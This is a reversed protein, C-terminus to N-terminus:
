RPVATAPPRTYDPMAASQPLAGCEPCRRGEPQARLDYGCAACRGRRRRYWQRLVRKLWVMLPLAAMLAIPWMPVTVARYVAYLRTSSSQEESAFGVRALWGRYQWDDPPGLEAQERAWFWRNFLREDDRATGPLPERSEYNM